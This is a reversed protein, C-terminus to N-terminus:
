TQPNLTLQMVAQKATDKVSESSDDKAAHKLRAIVAKDGHAAVRGLASAAGERVHYRRHQLLNMLTKVTDPNGRQAIHVMAKAAATRLKENEDQLASILAETALPDGHEAIQLLAELAAKKAYEQHHQMTGKLAVIAHTNGKQVIQMMIKMCLQRVREDENELLSVMSMVNAEVAQDALQLIASEAVERVYGRPHTLSRTLMQVTAQDGKRSTRLLTKEAMKRIDEESTRFADALASLVVQNGSEAIQTLADMAADRIGESHAERTIGPIELWTEADNAPSPLAPLDFITDVGSVDTQVEAQAVVPRDYQETQFKYICTGMTEHHGPETQFSRSVLKAPELSRLLKKIVQKDDPVSFYVLAKVAANREHEKASELMSMLHDVVYEDGKPITRTLIHFGAERVRIEERKLFNLMTDVTFGDPPRHSIHILARAAADIVAQTQDEGGICRRALVDMCRGDGRESFKELTELSSLRHSEESETEELFALAENLAAKSAEIFERTLADQAEMRETEAAERKRAAKLEEAAYAIDLETKLSGLHAQVHAPPVGAEEAVEAAKEALRLAQLRIADEEGNFCAKVVTAAHVLDLEARRAAAGSTAELESRLINEAAIMDQSRVDWSRLMKRLHEDCKRGFGQNVAYLEKIHLDFEAIHQRGFVELRVSISLHRYGWSSPNQFANALSVVDLNELSWALAKLLDGATDFIACLRSINLVSCLPADVMGPRKLAEASEVLEWRQQIGPDLFKANPLAYRASSQWELLSLM